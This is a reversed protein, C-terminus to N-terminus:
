THVRPKYVQPIVDLGRIMIRLALIKLELLIETFESCRM